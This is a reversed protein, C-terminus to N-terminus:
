RFKKVGSRYGADGAPVAPIPVSEYNGALFVKRYIGCIPMFGKRESLSM